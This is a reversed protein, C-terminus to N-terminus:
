KTEGAPTTLEAVVQDPTKDPQQTALGRSVLARELVSMRNNLSQLTTGTAVMISQLSEQISEMLQNMDYRLTVITPDNPDVRNLDSM